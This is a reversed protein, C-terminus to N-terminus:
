FIIKFVVLPLFTKRIFFSTKVAYIFAFNFFFIYCHYCGNYALMSKCMLIFCIYLGQITHM